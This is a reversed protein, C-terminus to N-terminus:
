FHMPLIHMYVDATRVYGSIMDNKGERKEGELERILVCLSKSENGVVNRLGMRVSALFLEEM